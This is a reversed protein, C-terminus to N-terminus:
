PHDTPLAAALAAIKVVTNRNRATGGRAVPLTLRTTAQGSPYHIYLERTGAALQEDRQHRVAILADPPPPADLFLIMLQNGAAEPFPDAALVDTLEKATRILVGIPKAPQGPLAALRAELAAKVAPEPLPSTFVVNGSAIYTQVHRFGAQRCLDALTAMSLKGTGGVNVARLLAAYSSM